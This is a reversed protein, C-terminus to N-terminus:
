VAESIPRRSRRTMCLVRKAGDIGRLNVLVSVLWLVARGVVDM